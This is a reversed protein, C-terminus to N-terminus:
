KNMPVLLLLYIRASAPEIADLSLEIPECTPCNLVRCRTTVMRGTTEDYVACEPEDSPEADYEDPEFAEYSPEVPLPEDTQAISSLMPRFDLEAPMGIGMPMTYLDHEAFFEEDYDGIIEHLAETDQPLDAIFEALEEATQISVANEFVPIVPLGQYECLNNAQRFESVFAQKAEHDVLLVANADSSLLVMRPANTSGLYPDHQIDNAEMILLPDLVVPQVMRSLPVASVAIVLACFASVSVNRIRQNRAKIQKRRTDAKAYVSASFAEYSKM